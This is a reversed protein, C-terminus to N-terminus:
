RHATQGGRHISAALSLILPVSWFRGYVHPVANVIAAFLTITVLGCAAFLRSERTAISSFCTILGGILMLVFGVMAIFGGEAWLLLYLNHVPQSWESVERYQDAGLGVFTTSDVIGLAERILELRENFTGMTEVTGSELGPLVRKQFVQPLHSRVAEIQMMFWFAQVAVVIFVVRVLTPKFVAFAGLALVLSWLATNSGTLMIAYAFLPLLVLTLVPPMTRTGGLTLILPVALAIFSGFENEREIFGQLRGSGSVWATNREELYDVVYIGHLVSVTVAAIFVYMLIRTQSWPRGLLVFPLILYAFFYQGCLILARESDGASVISSVFLGGTLMTLGFMWFATGAGLPQAPITNRFLMVVLCSLAFADSLTFYIGPARLFNMPVFFVAACALVLEFTRAAGRRQPPHAQSAEAEVYNSTHTMRDVGDADMISVRFYFM